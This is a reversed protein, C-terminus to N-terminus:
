QLQKPLVLDDLCQHDCGEMWIYCTTHPKRREVGAHDCMPVVKGEAKCEEQAYALAQRYRDLEKEFDQRTEFLSDITKDISHYAAKVLMEDGYVRAKWRTDNRFFDDMGPTVFSPHIYVCPRENPGNSFAGGSRAKLYLIEHITLGLIEKMLVLCEDLRELVVVLDYDELIGQVVGSFDYDTQDARPLKYKDSRLNIERVTPNYGHGELLKRQFMVDTPVKQGVTVDFHFFRSIARSTPDRIITTLFSHEKKRKDFGYKVGFGHNTRHKCVKFGRRAVGDDNDGDEEEKKTTEVVATSNQGNSRRAINLPHTKARSHALRMFISTLTTSGTKTPRQLLLGKYAPTELM